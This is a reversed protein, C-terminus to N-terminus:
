LRNKLEKSLQYAFIYVSDPLHGLQSIEQINELCAFLSPRFKLNKKEGVQILYTGMAKFSRQLAQLYYTERFRYYNKSSTKAIFEQLMTQRISTPLPRYADYLISSLDYQPTGMRADQFDILYIDQSMEQDQILNRCHFDRHVFVQDPHQDLFSCTEQLFIYFEELLDTKLNFNEKWKTYSNVTLNVEFMLKEYDFRRNKVMEPPNLNQLNIILDLLKPLLAEYEQDTKVSLDDFGCFEQLITNNKSDISIVKPVHISNQSLFVSLNIFDWNIANDKCLVKKTERDKEVLFYRRTSAEEQLPTLTYNEEEFSIDNLNISQNKNVAPM